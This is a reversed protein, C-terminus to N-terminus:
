LSFVSWGKYTELILWIVVGLLLAGFFWYRFYRRSAAKEYVYRDEAVFYYHRGRFLSLPVRREKDSTLFSAKFLKFQRQKIHWSYLRKFMKSRYVSRM